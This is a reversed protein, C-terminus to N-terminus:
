SSACCVHMMVFMGIYSYYVTFIINTKKWVEQLLFEFKILDYEELSWSATITEDNRTMEFGLFKARSFPM